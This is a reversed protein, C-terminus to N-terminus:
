SSRKSGIFQSGIEVKITRQLLPNTLSYGLSFSILMHNRFWYSYMEICLGFYITFNCTFARELCYM